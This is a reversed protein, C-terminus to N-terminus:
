EASRYVWAYSKSQASRGPEKLVQVTTEDGHILPQSLLTKHLADYLRDPLLPANSRRRGRLVTRAPRGAYPELWETLVQLPM